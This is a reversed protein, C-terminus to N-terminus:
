RCHQQHIIALLDLHDPPLLSLRLLAIGITFGFIMGAIHAQYAVQQLTIEGVFSMFVNYAFFLSIFYMAPSDLTLSAFKLRINSRPFLTLYAGMVGGIAGSAGVMALGGVALFGIASFVAAALYFALYGLHGLRDNINNGLMWLVLLNFLLHGPSIHLFAYSLFQTLHLSSADLMFHTTLDPRYTQLVFTAVNALLLICNTWPNRHLPADTLSPLQLM